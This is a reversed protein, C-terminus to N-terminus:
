VIRASRPVVHIGSADIIQDRGKQVDRDGIEVGDGVQCFRDLITRRLRAGKGVRSFDMVVCNEVVAGEELVVGRGLVSRIVRAEQIITGEGLLSDEVEGRIIRVPGGDFAEGRIPWQRNNLNVVPRDGLLDMHAQWYSEITGVDRWYGSEENPDTGPVVNSRFNYAYLRAKGCLMPLVNKGFDHSGVLEADKKLTEELVPRNFLYNGMSAYAMGATGPIARPNRPKEEFGTIRGEANVEIVGFSSAASLPVPLAAVTVEAGCELHHLLMQSVDMRYVHDAGFVAVLDPNFDRVLNLNQYVADATGLYWSEGRRMQPPVVTIFDEKVPSGIRWTARLHEILSQSKYQVLVYLSSIESNIFNSLVFDIIRFKGGFPVAPKSRDRTLPYLREGKGGAMIFALVKLRRDFMFAGPNSTNRAGIYKMARDFAVARGGGSSNESRGVAGLERGSKEAAPHM